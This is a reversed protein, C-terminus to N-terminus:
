LLIVEIFDKIFLYRNPSLCIKATDLYTAPFDWIM